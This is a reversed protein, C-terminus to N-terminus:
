RRFLSLLEFLVLGSCILFGLLPIWYPFVFVADTVPQRQKIRLLALNVATFVTLMIISTMEALTALRGAVALTLVIGTVVLTALLPTRTYPNVRCLFAPLQGRSSMGYLVRAAMILQILAGNIIAFMGIVSIITSSGGSYHEYIKALPAESAALEDVSLAFIASIMILLYLCTTIALTILIAMPLNRKVQKVEEAVVVMDEFGIFAYFALLTGM